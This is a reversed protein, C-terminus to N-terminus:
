RSLSTPEEMQHLSLNGAFNKKANSIAIHVWKLTTNTTEKDSYCTVHGEVYKDIDLYRNSTDSLVITKEDLSEEICDNIAASNQSPLVTMKFYRCQSSKKGSVPDELPTSEAM